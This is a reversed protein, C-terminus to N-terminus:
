GELEMIDNIDKPRGSAKKIRILDKLAIFLNKESPVNPKKLIWIIKEFNITM